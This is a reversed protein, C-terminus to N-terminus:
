VWWVSIAVVAAAAAKLYENHLRKKERTKVEIWRKLSDLQPDNFPRILTKVAFLKCAIFLASAACTLAKVGMDMSM